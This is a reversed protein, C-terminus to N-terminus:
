WFELRSIVDLLLMACNRTGGIDLIFVLESQVHWSFILYYRLFFFFPRRQFVMIGDQYNALLIMKWQKISLMDNALTFIDLIEYQYQKQKQSVTWHNEHLSLKSQLDSARDKCHILFMSHSTWFIPRFLFPAWM